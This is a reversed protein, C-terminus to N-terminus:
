MRTRACKVVNLERAKLHLSYPSPCWLQINLHISTKRWCSDILNFAEDTSNAWLMDGDSSGSSSSTSRNEEEVVVVVLVVIIIVIIIVIVAVLIVIVVAAVKM